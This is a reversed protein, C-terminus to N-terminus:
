PRIQGKLRELLSWSSRLHWKIGLAKNIQQTVQSIFALGNDSQLSQPLGFRLIIEKLLAKSM